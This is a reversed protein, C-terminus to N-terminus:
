ATPRCGLDTLKVADKTSTYLDVMKRTSLQELFILLFEKRIGLEETLREIHIPPHSSFYSGSIEQMKEIIRKYVM